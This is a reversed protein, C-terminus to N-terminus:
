RSGGSFAYVLIVHVASFILLGYTLPIHVFLWGKLVLQSARQYDMADKQRILDAMQDANVQEVSTLYRKTSVLDGLLASLRRRSNVFSPWFAQPASFFGSLERTYFDALTTAQSEAIGKLALAEAKAQLDRRIIPIREYLVEGGTTTMRKPIVRSIWWGFIGSLTVGVFLWALTSEFWGTPVRWKLHLMFMLGTFLGTYVHIQFWARSSFLPLFALKKRANYGTLAIMLGFLVWGTVYVLLPLTSRFREYEWIALFSAGLLVCTLAVRRLALRPIM